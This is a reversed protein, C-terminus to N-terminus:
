RAGSLMTKYSQLVLPDNLVRDVASALKEGLTNRAAVVQKASIAIDDRRVDSM